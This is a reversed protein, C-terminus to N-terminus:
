TSWRELTYRSQNSRAFSTRHHWVISYTFLLARCGQRPQHSDCFWLKSVHMCVDLGLASEHVGGADADVYEFLMLACRREVALVPSPPTERFCRGYPDVYRPLCRCAMPLIQSGPDALYVPNLVLGSALNSRSLSMTSPDSDRLDRQGSAPAMSPNQRLNPVGDHRFSVRSECTSGYHRSTDGNRGQLTVKAAETHDALDPDFDLVRSNCSPVPASPTSLVVVVQFKRSRGRSHANTQSGLCRDLCRLQQQCSIM